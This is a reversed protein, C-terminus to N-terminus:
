ASPLFDWLEGSYNQSECLALIRRFDSAATQVQESAQGAHIADVIARVIRLDTDRDFGGSMVANLKTEM